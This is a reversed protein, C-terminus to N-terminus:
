NFSTNIIIDSDNLRYKSKTDLIPSIRDIVERSVRASNWGADTKGFTDYDNERDNIPKPSDLSILVIYKPKNIPFAAIFTALKGLKKDYAGETNSRATGTKGGVLYGYEYNYRYSHKYTLTENYGFASRATGETVVKSFLYRMKESTDQTFIREKYDKRKEKKILSPEIIYGGNLVTATALTLHLPSISMGYGYSISDTSVPLWPDPIAPSSLETLDLNVRDFLGLKSLYEKQLDIGIDRVMKITGVNSSNRFIEEVSCYDRECPAHSDTVINDGVRITKEIKYKSNIKFKNEELGIATTFTKMVSGFEYLGKTNRNFKNEELFESEEKSSKNPDYDPLSVISLIEGNNINMVMGSGGKAEFIKMANLIEDRVINQIRIDLSSVLIWDDDNNNYSRDLTLELGSLGINDNDVEGIIHSFLSKHIHKRKYSDEIVIGTEGLNIIRQLDQPIVNRDLYFSNTSNLRKTIGDISLDNYIKTIKNIFRQKDNIEKPFVQVNQMKLNATLSVNNRDVINPRIVLENNAFYKENPNFFLNLHLIQIATAFFFTSFIISSLILRNNIKIQFKDKINNLRDLKFKEQDYRHTFSFSKQNFDIKKRSNRRLKKM